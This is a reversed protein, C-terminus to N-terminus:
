YAGLEDLRDDSIGFHHALEHRVTRGVEQRLADLTDCEREHAHQYITILDPPALDYHTDRETLPTGQYFGFLDDADDVEAADLDESTPRVKVEIELNVIRQQIQAPLADVAAWVMDEFQKRTVKMM